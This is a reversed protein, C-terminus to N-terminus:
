ALISIQSSCVCHLNGPYRMPRRAFLTLCDTTSPFFETIPFLSPSIYFINAPHSSVTFVHAPSNCYVTKSSVFVVRSMQEAACFMKKGKSRDGGLKGSM